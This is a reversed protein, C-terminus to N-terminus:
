GWRIRTKQGSREGLLNLLNALAKAQEPQAFAQGEFNWRNNTVKGQGEVYLPGQLTSVRLQPKSGGQFDIQYSGVQPLTSLRSSLHLARLQASGNWAPQTGVWSMQMTQWHLQLGGQMQLTNWPSGLGQLLAIPMHLAAPKIEVGSPTVRLHVDAPTCCATSLQVGLGKWDPRIHWHWRSPWTMAATGGAPGTLVLAASGNWVSGQTQLLQIRGHSVKHIASSLWSVPAHLLLAAGAGLVIGLCSPLWMNSNSNRQVIGKSRRKM